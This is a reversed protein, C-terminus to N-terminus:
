IFVNHANRVVRIVFYSIEYVLIHFSNYSAIRM